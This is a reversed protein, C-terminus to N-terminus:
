TGRYYLRGTRVVLYRAHVPHLLPLQTQDAAEVNLAASLRFAAARQADYPGHARGYKHM